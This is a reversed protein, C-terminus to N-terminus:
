RSPRAILCFAAVLGLATAFSGAVMYDFPRLSEPMLWLM